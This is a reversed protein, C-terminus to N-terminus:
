VDFKKAGELFKLTELGVGGGQRGKAAPLGRSGGPWGPMGSVGQLRSFLLRPALAGFAKLKCREDMGYGVPPMGIFFGAEKAWCEPNLRLGARMM